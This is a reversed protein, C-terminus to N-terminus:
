FFFNLVFKFEKEPEKIIIETMDSMDESNQVNVEHKPSKYTKVSYNSEAKEDIVHANELEKNIIAWAGSRFVTSLKWM